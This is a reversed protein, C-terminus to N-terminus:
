EDNPVESDLQAFSDLDRMEDPMEQHINQSKPLVADNILLVVVSTMLYLGFGVFLLLNPMDHGDALTVGTFYIAILSFFATHFVKPRDFSFGSIFYLALLTSIIAFIMYAYDIILPDASRVRFADVLWLCCAYAPVLLAASNQGKQNGRYNRVGSLVIGVAAAVSFGALVLSLVSPVEQVQLAQMSDSCTFVASGFLSAASVVIGVLYLANPAAFADGYGNKFRRHRGRCLFAFIVIVLLSVGILTISAPVQTLAYPLGTEDYVTALEWRRLFFGAVAAAVAFLISGIAKGMTSIM